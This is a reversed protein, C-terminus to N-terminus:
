GRLFNPQRERPNICGTRLLNSKTRGEESFTMGRQRAREDKM